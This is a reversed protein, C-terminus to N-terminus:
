EDEVGWDDDNSEFEHHDTEMYNVGVDMEFKPPSERFDITMHGQGGDNNYWDLNSDELWDLTIQKLVEDIGITKVETQMVWENDRKVRDTEVVWEIMEKYIEVRGNDSDFAAIDEIDGSDGGGSFEVRVEKVNLLRLRALLEIKKDRSPFLKM